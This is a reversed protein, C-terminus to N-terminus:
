SEPASDTDGAPRSAQVFADAPDFTITGNEFAQMMTGFLVETKVKVTSELKQFTSKKLGTVILTGLHSKDEEKESFAIIRLAGEKKAAHLLYVHFQDFTWGVQALVGQLALNNEPPIDTLFYAENTTFSLIVETLASAWADDGAEPFHRKTNQMFKEFAVEPIGKLNYNRGNVTITITIDSM